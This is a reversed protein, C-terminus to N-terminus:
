SPAHTENTGDVFHTKRTHSKKEEKREWKRTQFFMKTMTMPEIWNLSVCLFGVIHIYIYLTVQQIHAKVAGWFFLLNQAEVMRHSIIMSPPVSRFRDPLLCHFSKLTSDNPPCYACWYLMFNWMYIFILRFLNNSGFPERKCKRGVRKENGFSAFTHGKGKLRYSIGYYLKWFIRRFQIHQTIQKPSGM